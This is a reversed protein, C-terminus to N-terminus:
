ESRDAIPLPTQERHEKLAQSYHKLDTKGDEAAESRDPRDWGFKNRMFMQYLAPESHRKGDMMQLGRSEWARKSLAKAREMHISPFVEPEERMYTEMTKYSCLLAGDKEYFWTDKSNGQSVHDCYDLYAEMKLETTVLKVAYKNGFASAM